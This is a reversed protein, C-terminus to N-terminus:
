SRVAITGQTTEGSNQQVDPVCASRGTFAAPRVWLMLNEAEALVTNSPRPRADCLCSPAGAAPRSGATGRPPEIYLGRPRTPFAGAEPSHRASHRLSTVRAPRTWHASWLRGRRGRGRPVLQQGEETPDPQCVSFLLENEGDQERRSRQRSQGEGPVCSKVIGVGLRGGAGEDRPPDQRPGRLAEAELRVGSAPSGRRDRPFSSVSFLREHRELL